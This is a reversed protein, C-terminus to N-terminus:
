RTLSSSRGVFSITRKGGDRRAGGVPGELFLPFHFASSTRKLDKEVIDTCIELSGSLQADMGDLHIEPRGWEGDLLEIEQELTTSDLSLQSDPEEFLCFFFSFTGPCLSHKPVAM